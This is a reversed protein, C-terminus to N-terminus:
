SWVPPPVYEHENPTKDPLTIQVAVGLGVHLHTCPCVSGYKTPKQEAKVLSQKSNARLHFVFPEIRNSPAHTHACGLEPASQCAWVPESRWTRAHETCKSQEHKSSVPTYAGGTLAAICCVLLILPKTHVNPSTRIDSFHFVRVRCACICVFVCM